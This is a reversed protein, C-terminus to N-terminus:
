PRWNLRRASHAHAVQGMDFEGITVGKEDASEVHMPQYLYMPVKRLYCHSAEQNDRYESYTMVTPCETRSYVFTDTWNKMSLPQNTLTRDVTREEAYGNASAIYVFPSVHFWWHYNYERIYKRTFFLFVKMSRIGRGNWMGYAWTHARQYCQSRKKFRNELSAFLSSIEQESQFVTPAYEQAPAPAEAADFGDVYKVAESPALVSFSIVDLGDTILRVPKHNLAAARLEDALAKQESPLRYIQGDVTALIRYVDSGSAPDMVEHIRTKLSQAALANASALLSVTLIALTLLLRFRKM